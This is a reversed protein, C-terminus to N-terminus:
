LATVVMTNKLAILLTKVKNSLLFTYTELTFEKPFLSYGFETISSETTLSSSLVIIMPILWLFTLIAMIVVCVKSERQLKHTKRAMGIEGKKSCHM